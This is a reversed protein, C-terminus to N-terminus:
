PRATRIVVMDWYALHPITADVFPGSADEGAAYGLPVPVGGGGPLDPSAVFMGTARSGGPLRYRIRVDTQPQPPTAANRWLDDNVGVLNVLHVIDAGETRRFIPHIVGAGRNSLRQGSLIQLPATAPDVPAIGPAFLLNEYAAAFNYYRRMERQLAPTISKSRNPYYEHALGALDDGIEIHFVGSAFMVADALQVAQEDFSGLALHDVNIAGPEGAEDFLTIDHRGAGLV